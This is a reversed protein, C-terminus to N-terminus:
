SINHKLYKHIEHNLQNIIIPKAVVRGNPEMELPLNRHHADNSLDLNGNALEIGAIINQPPTSVDFKESICIRGNDYINTLIPVQKDRTAIYCAYNEHVHDGAHVILFVNKLYVDTMDGESNLFFKDNDVDFSIPLKWKLFRCYIVHTVYVASTYVAHLFDRNDYSFAQNDQILKTGMLVEQDIVSKFNVEHLETVGDVVRTLFVNEM